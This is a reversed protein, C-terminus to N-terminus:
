QGPEAPLRSANVDFEDNHSSPIGANFFDDRLEKFMFIEGPETPLPKIGVVLSDEVLAYVTRGKLEEWRRVGFAKLLRMIFEMGFATGWSRQTEEHWCDLRYMGAGQISGGYDLDIVATMLGHDEIGLYTEKVKGIKEQM